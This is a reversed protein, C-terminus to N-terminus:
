GSLPTRSRSVALGGLVMAALGLVLAAAGGVVGNGTGPGGTAFALNLGGGVVALLGAMLAATARWRGSRTEVRGASRRLGLGGISVGVLALMAATSAWVRRSTLGYVPPAAAESVQATVLVAHVLGAFLAAAALAALVLVFTRKM